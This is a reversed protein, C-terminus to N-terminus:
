KGEIRESRRQGKGEMWGESESERTRKHGEDDMGRRKRGDGSEGGRRERRRRM